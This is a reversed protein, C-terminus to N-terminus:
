VLHLVTHLSYVPLLMRGARAEIYVCVYIQYMCRNEYLSLFLNQIRFICLLFYYQKERVM